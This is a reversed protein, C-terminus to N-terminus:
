LVNGGETYRLAHTRRTHHAHTHAHTHHMDQKDLKLDDRRQQQLQLEFQPIDLYNNEIMHSTKTALYGEIVRVMMM